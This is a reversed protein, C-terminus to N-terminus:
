VEEKAEGLLRSINSALQTLSTLYDQTSKNYNFRGVFKLGEEENKALVSDGRRYVGFPIAAEENRAEEAAWLIVSAMAERLWSESLRVGPVTTFPTRVDSSCVEKIIEEPSKPSPM